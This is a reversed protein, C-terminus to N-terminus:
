QTQGSWNSFLFFFIQTFISSYSNRKSYNLTERLIELLVFCVTLFTVHWKPRFYWIQFPILLFVSIVSCFALRWFLLPVTWFCILHVVENARFPIALVLSCGKNWTFVFTLSWFLIIASLYLVNKYSIGTNHIVPYCM